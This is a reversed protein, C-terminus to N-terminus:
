AAVRGRAQSALELLWEAFSIPTRRDRTEDYWERVLRPYPGRADVYLVVVDDRM